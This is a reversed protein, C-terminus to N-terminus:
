GCRTPVNTGCISLTRDLGEIEGLWGEAFAYKKRAELDAELENLRPFM